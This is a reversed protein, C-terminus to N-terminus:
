FSALKLPETRETTVKYDIALDEDDDIIGGGSYEDDDDYNNVDEDVGIDYDLLPESSEFYYFYNQGSAIYRDDTELYDADDTM